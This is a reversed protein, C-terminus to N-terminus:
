QLSWMTPNSSAQTSLTDIDVPHASTSPLPMEPPPPPPLPYGHPPPDPLTEIIEAFEGSSNRSIANYREYIHEDSQARGPHSRLTALPHGQQYDHDSSGSPRPHHGQRSISHQRRYYLDRAMPGQKAMIAAANILEEMPPVDKPAMHSHQRMPQPPPRRPSSTGPCFSFGFASM